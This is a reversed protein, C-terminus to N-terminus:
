GDGDGRLPLVHHVETLAVHIVGHPDEEALRLLLDVDEREECGKVQSDPGANGSGDGHHAEEDEQKAPHLRQTGLIRWPCWLLRASHGAGEVAGDPNHISSEHM